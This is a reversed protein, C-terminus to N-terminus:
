DFQQKVRPRVRVSPYNGKINADYYRAKSDASMLDRHVSPAVQLYRYVAGNVFEIELIHLRKSYGISAIGKSVVLERPIHSTVATRAQRPVLGGSQRVPSPKNNELSDAISLRSVSLLLLLYFSNASMQPFSRSGNGRQSVNLRAFIQLRTLDTKAGSM